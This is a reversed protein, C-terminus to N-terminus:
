RLPQWRLVLLITHIWLLVPPANGRGDTKLKDIGFIRDCTVADPLSTPVQGNKQIDLQSMQEVAAVSYNEGCAFICVSGRVFLCMWCPSQNVSM